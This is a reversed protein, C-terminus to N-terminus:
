TYFVYKVVTEFLFKDYKKINNKICNTTKLLKHFLKIEFLFKIYIINKIKWKIQIYFCFKSIWMLLKLMKNELNICNTKFIKLKLNFFRLIM